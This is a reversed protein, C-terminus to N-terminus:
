GEARANRLATQANFSGSQWDKLTAVWEQPKTAIYLRGASEGRTQRVVTNTKM